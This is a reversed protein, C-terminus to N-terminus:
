CRRSVQADSFGFWCISNYWHSQRLMRGNANSSVKRWVARLKLSMKLFPLDYYFFYQHRRKTTRHNPTLLSLLLKCEQCALGRFMTWRWFLCSLLFLCNYYHCLRQPFRPIPRLGIQFGLTRPPLNWRPLLHSLYLLDDMVHRRFSALYRGEVSWGSYRTM